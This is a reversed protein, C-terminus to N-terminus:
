GVLGAGKALVERYVQELGIVTTKLDFRERARILGRSGIWERYQRDELLAIIARALEAVDRPSVLLGTEEHAVIEPLGGVRSAVVAKGMAMAEVVAIGFAENLSPQVYLDMAAFYPGTPDQFGAFHVRETLGKDACLQQL